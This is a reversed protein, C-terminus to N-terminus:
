RQNSFWLTAIVIAPDDPHHCALKLGRDGPAASLTCHFPNYASKVDLSSLPMNGDLYCVNRDGTCPSVNLMIECTQAAPDCTGTISGKQTGDVGSAGRISCNGPPDETVDDTAFDNWTGRIHRGDLALGVTTEFKKEGQCGRGWSHHATHVSYWPHRTLWDFASTEQHAKQLRYDLEADLNEAHNATDGSLGLKEARKLHTMAEETHGSQSEVIALNYQVLANDPALESAKTFEAEAVALDHNKLAIM